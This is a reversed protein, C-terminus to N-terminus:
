CSLKELGDKLGYLLQPPPPLPRPQPQRLVHQISLMFFFIGSSSMMAERLFSQFHMDASDDRTDTRRNLRELFYSSSFQVETQHVLRLLCMESFLPIFWMAMFRKWPNKVADKKRKKKKVRFHSCATCTSSIEM